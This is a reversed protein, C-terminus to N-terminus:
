GKFYRGIQFIGIVISGNYEKPKIGQRIVASHESYTFYNNKGYIGNM